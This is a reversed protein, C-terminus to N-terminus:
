GLVAGVVAGTMWSAISVGVLALAALTMWKDRTM